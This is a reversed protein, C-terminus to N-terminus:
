RGSDRQIAIRNRNLRDYLSGMPLNFVNDSLSGMPLNLVSDSSVYDRDCPPIYSDGTTGTTTTATTRTRTTSTTTAAAAAAASASASASAAAAAAAAAAAVNFVETEGSESHVTEISVGGTNGHLHQRVAQAEAASLPLDTQVVLLHSISKDSSRTLPFLKLYILAPENRDLRSHVLAVAGVPKGNACENALILLQEAQPQPAAIVKCFPVGELSSVPMNYLACWEENVHVINLPPKANIIARVEKSPLLAMDITNPV